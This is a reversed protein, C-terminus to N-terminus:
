NESSENDNTTMKKEKTENKEPSRDKRKNPERRQKKQEQFNVQREELKRKTGKEETGGKFVIKDLWIFPNSVTIWRLNPGQEIESTSSSMSPAQQDLQRQTAIDRELEETISLIQM